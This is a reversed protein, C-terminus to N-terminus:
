RLPCPKAPASIRVTILLFYNHEATFLFGFLTCAEDDCVLLPEFLREAQASQLYKNVGFCADVVYIGDALSVRAYRREEVCVASDDYRVGRLVFRLFLSVIEASVRSQMYM